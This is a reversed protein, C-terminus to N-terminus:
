RREEAFAQEAEEFSASLTQLRGVLGALEEGAGDNSRASAIGAVFRAHLEVMASEAEKLRQEVMTMSAEVSRYQEVIRQQAAVATDSEGLRRLTAEAEGRGRLTRRLENWSEVLSRARELLRESEVLVEAGVIKVNTVDQNAAVLAALGEHARQLPRYLGAARPEFEFSPVDKAQRGLAFGFGAAVGLVATLAGLSVHGFAILVVGAGVLAIALRGLFREM